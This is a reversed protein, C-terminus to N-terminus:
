CSSMEYLDSKRINKYKRYYYLVIALALNESVFLIIYKILNLILKKRVGLDKLIIRFVGLQAINFLFKAIRWVSYFALVDFFDFYPDKAYHYYESFDPLFLTVLHLIFFLFSFLSVITLVVKYNRQKHEDVVLNKFFWNFQFFPVFCLFKNKNNGDLFLTMIFCKLLFFFFIVGFYFFGIHDFDFFKILLNGCVLMFLSFM